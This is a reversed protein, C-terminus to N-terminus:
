VESVDATRVTIAVDRPDLIFVATRGSLAHEPLTPVTLVENSRIYRTTGTPLVIRGFMDVSSLAMGPLLSDHVVEILASARLETPFGTNNVLGTLASTIATTDPDDQGPRKFIEFSISLFCPIAARILVDGTPPATDRDLFFAQLAAILPMQRAVVDYDQTDSYVTLDTTDTATDLFRVAATQYRSFAAEEATLLDPQLDSAYTEMDFDRTLDTVEFSTTEEPDGSLVVREIEYFGPADDLDLSFQWVGGDETKDVLTATKTMTIAQPLEQARIYIDARGGGSVPFLSHQDRTMEADGYGIESIALIAEFAPQSRILAPNTARNSWTKVALGEAQRAVLDENTEEAVGGTFDSEAYAAAFYPITGTPTLPDGRRLMGSAGEEEAAIPISFAYTGAGLPSLLRDTESVVTAQSIRAAYAAETVFTVGNAEFVAGNPITVPALRSLVITMDGIAAGGARRTIGYNSLLADVIEPDADDDITLLSSAKRYIEVNEDAVATNIVAALHSVISHVTGISFQISPFGEQLIATLKAQVDSVRAPDLASLDRVELAM